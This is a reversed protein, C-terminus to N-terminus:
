FVFTIDSSNSLPIQKLEQFGILCYYVKFNGYTWLSQVYLANISKNSFRHGTMLKDLLNGLSCNRKFHIFLYHIFVFKSQKVHITSLEQPCCLTTEKQVLLSEYCSNYTSKYLQKIVM